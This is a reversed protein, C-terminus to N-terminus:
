KTAIDSKMKEKAEKFQADRRWNGRVCAEAVATTKHSLYAMSSTHVAFSM